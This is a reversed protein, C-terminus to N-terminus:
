YDILWSQLAVAVAAARTKVNLKEFINHLHFDVTRPHIALAQAIELDTRGHAVRILVDRERETLIALPPGHGIQRGALRKYVTYFHNVFAALIDLNRMQGAATTSTALAVGAVQHAPGAFPIGVGNHLGAAEGERFFQVQRRSLDNRKEIDKWRFPQHNGVAFRVVPDITQLRAEAYYSRWEVPYTSILGFGQSSAPLDRDNMISFNVRDYGLYEMAEIFVEFLREPTRVARVANVFEEFTLRGNPNLM